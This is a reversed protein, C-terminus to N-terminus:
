FKVIDHNTNVTIEPGIHFLTYIYQFSHIGILALNNFLCGGIVYFTFGNSKINIRKKFIKHWFQLM